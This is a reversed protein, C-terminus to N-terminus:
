PALDRTQPKPRRDSWLEPHLRLRFSSNLYGFAVVAFLSCNVVGVALNPALGGRPLLEQAAGFLAFVHLAGLWFGARPRGTWRWWARPEVVPEHYGRFIRVGLLTYGINIGFDLVAYPSSNASLFWTRLVFFLSAFVAYGIVIYLTKQWIQTIRWPRRM